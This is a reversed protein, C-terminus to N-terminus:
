RCAAVCVAKDVGPFGQAVLLCARKGDMIVCDFKPPPPPPPPPPPGDPVDLEAVLTATFVSGKCTSCATGRRCSSYVHTAPNNARPQPAVATILHTMKSNDWFIKPRERSWYLLTENAHTTVAAPYPVGPSVFWSHGDPSFAHASTLTGRCSDNVVAPENGFAHFLLHLNDSADFYLYPDEFGGGVPPRNGEARIHNFTMHGIVLTWPGTLNQSRWIGDVNPGGGGCALFLTGNTHLWPSPNNCYCLPQHAAKCDVSQQVKTWPGFPTLSTHVGYDLISFLAFSGNKLRITAPNHGPTLTTKNYVYPGSINPAIAHDVLSEGWNSLNTGAPMASVFLHYSNGVKVPNGGWTFNGYYTRKGSSDYGPPTGYAPEGNHPKFAMNECNGGHWPPDCACVGNALKGNLSCCVDGLTVNSCVVAPAEVHSPAQPIAQHIAQVYTFTHDACAGPLGVGNVLHTIVGSTPDIILKPRERRTLKWATGDALAVQNDYCNKPHFTWAKGDRSWAHGGAAGGSTKECDSHFIAHYGRTGKWVFADEIHCWSFTPFLNTTDWTYTANWAPAHASAYYSQGSGKTYNISRWLMRVSGDSLILPAPNLDNGNGPYTSNKECGPVSACTGITTSAWPGDLSQSSLVDVPGYFNLGDMWPHKPGTCGATCNRAYQCHPSSQVPCPATNNAGSGVQYILYTDKNRIIQPSHAFHAKVIGQFQYPGAPGTHSTAHGIASNPRWANLGCGNEIVAAYIHHVGDGGEIVSGGWSSYLNHAAGAADKALQLGADKSGPVLRLRECDVGQWQPDCVCHGKNYDGNLSCDPGAGSGEQVNMAVCIMLRLMGQLNIAVM